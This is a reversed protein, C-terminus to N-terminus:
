LKMMLKSMTDFLRNMINELREMLKNVANDKLGETVVESYSVIEKSVIIVTESTKLGM